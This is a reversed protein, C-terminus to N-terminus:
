GFAPPEPPQWGTDQKFQRALGFGVRRQGWDYVTYFKRLVPEGMVFFASGLSRVKDIPLLQARCFDRTHNPPGGAVLLATPAMRSYDQHTLEISFNGLDFVISPGLVGRCDVSGHEEPLVRALLRHMTRLESRPVGLLSSGSDLVARCTGNECLPLPQGDVRVGRLSIQWYGLNADAVPAWQLPSALHKANYGGFSIESPDGETPSLFLAFRKAIAEHQMSLQGFFSFEPALSLNALGLGLVGDFGFAKFPDDSMNKAVVIHLQACDLPRRSAVGVCVVDRVFDGTVRGTGFTVALHDREVGPQPSAGDSNVDIASDSVLRDFRQKGLCADSMCAISPLIMHGSGTDFVVTFNQTEPQGVSIQGFYATRTAVTVNNKLVPISQKRLLTTHIGASATAEVLLVLALWDAFLRWALM